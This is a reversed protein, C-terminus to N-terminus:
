QADQIAEVTGPIEGLLARATDWIGEDHRRGYESSISPPVTRLTHNARPSASLLLNQWGCQLVPLNPITEWLRREENIRNQLKARTFEETGTPTGLVVIGQPQWADQGLDEAQEPQVGGKNWVRTKGQHLHIGAVRLLARRLADHIFNVRDLQCLAFIDDLFACLQEGPHLVESVEELAGQIGISFLLPMLPDGQEGGEAQFLTRKQGGEDWWSYKSPAGCSLRVFPLISRAAPMKELRELMAARSVHDYAGIGDVSLITASGCRDTAARLPRCLGNWSQYVSRIPVACVGARIRCLITKRADQRRTEQTFMRNCHRSRGWRAKVTSHSSSRHTSVRDRSPTHGTAFEIGSRVVTQFHRCRGVISAFARVHVGRGPGPASGKPASKLSRMFIKRDVHVPEPECEVVRRRLPRQVHQPRQSQMERFTAETGPALAAGVLCQRARTVEGLQVKRCALAARQESTLPKRPDRTPFQARVTSLTEQWLRGWEGSTFLNFRHCKEEKSVKGDSSSRRLFMMPMLCFLKWGRVEGRRDQIRVAHPRAELAHRAVQRFRGKVHHPCSQLM